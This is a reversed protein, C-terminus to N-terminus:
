GGFRLVFFSRYLHSCVSLCYVRVCGCCLCFLGVWRGGERRRPHLRVLLIRAPSTDCRMECSEEGRWEDPETSLARACLFFPLSLCLSLGNPTEYLSLSLSLACASM